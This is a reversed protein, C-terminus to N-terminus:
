NTRGKPVTVLFDHRELSFGKWIGYKVLAAFTAAFAYVPAHPPRVITEKRGWQTTTM